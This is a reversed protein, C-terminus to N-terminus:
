TVTKGWDMQYMERIIRSTFCYTCKEFCNRCITFCQPNGGLAPGKSSIKLEERLLLYTHQHVHWYCWLSLGQTHFLCDFQKSMNDTYVTPLTQIAIITFKFNCRLTHPLNIALSQVLDLIWVTHVTIQIRVLENLVSLFFVYLFYIYIFTFM